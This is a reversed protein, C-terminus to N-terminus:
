EIRAQINSAAQEAIKPLTKGLNSTLAKSSNIASVAGLGVCIIVILLGLFVILKTKISKMNVEM